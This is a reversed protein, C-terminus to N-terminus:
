SPSAIVEVETHPTLFSYMIVIKFYTFGLYHRCNFITCCETYTVMAWILFFFLNQTKPM